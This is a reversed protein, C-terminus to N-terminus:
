VFNVGITEKKPEDPIYTSKKQSFLGTTVIDATFTM